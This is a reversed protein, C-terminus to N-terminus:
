FNKVITYLGKAGKKAFSNLQQYRALADCSHKTYPKAFGEQIMIENLCRGDPLFVYALTRGFADTSNTSETAITCATSTPAVQLLFNLSARGLNMLLQGAVHSEREDQKLKPCKIIEPADIGLLRIEQEQKTSPHTIIISDGDIIKTIIYHSFTLQYEKANYHM